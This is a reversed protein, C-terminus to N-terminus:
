QRYDSKSTPCGFPKIQFEYGEERHCFARFFPVAAIDMLAFVRRWGGAPLEECTRGVDLRWGDRGWGYGADYPYDGYRGALVERVGMEQALGRAGSYLAVALVREGAWPDAVLMGLLLRKSVRRYRLAGLIEGDPIAAVIFREEFAAWRPM